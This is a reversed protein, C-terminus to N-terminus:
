QERTAAAPAPPAPAACCRANRARPHHRGLGGAAKGPGGARLFIVADFASTSRTVSRRITGMPRATPAPMSANMYKVPALARTARRRGKGRADGGAEAAAQGRGRQGGRGGWEGGGLGRSGMWAAPNQPVAVRFAASRASSSASSRRRARAAASARRAAIRAPAASARLPWTALPAPPPAPPLSLTCAPCAPAPPRPPSAYRRRDPEDECLLGEIKEGTRL